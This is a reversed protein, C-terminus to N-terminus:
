RARALRRREALYDLTGPVLSAASFGLGLLCVATWGSTQLVIGALASAAAGGAFYTTMYGSNLRARSEPRLSYVVAQNTIQMGQVAADQLVIGLVILPASQAGLVLVLFSIALLAGSAVTTRAAHGADALRGALNATVVGTVGALGFLGIVLSSYHFPAAALHFALSTWLISFAGFFCGGHWARRRLLPEDRLLVLVSGVLGLYPIPPRPGEKPLVIKFIVAFCVMVVASFVYVVRWSTAQAILGSVTRALLIGILLGSMVRAIVQGRRHPAALETAYPIMIQGAVSSVATFFSAVEFVILNPAVACVILGVTVVLYISPVLSTRRFRDGLPVVLLLGVAYGLVNCTVITAAVAVAVHFHASLLHLLPQAYYLNAVIFGTGSAMFTVLWPSLRDESTTRM